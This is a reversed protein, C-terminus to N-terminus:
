DWVYVYDLKHLEFVSNVGPCEFLDRILVADTIVGLLAVSNDWLPFRFLSITCDILYHQQMVFSQCSLWNAITRVFKCDQEELFIIAYGFGWFSFFPLFINNCFLLKIASFSTYRGCTCKKLIFVNDNTNMINKSILSVNHIILLLLM